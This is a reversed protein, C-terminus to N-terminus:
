SDIDPAAWSVLRRGNSSSTCGGETGGTGCSWGSPGGAGRYVRRIVSRARSCSVGRYARVGTIRTAPVRLGSCRKATAASADTPGTPAAFLAATAAVAALTGATTRM